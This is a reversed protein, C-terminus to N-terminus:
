SVTDGQSVMCAAMIPGDHCCRQPVLNPDPLRMDRGAIRAWCDFDWVKALSGIRKLTLAESFWGKFLLKVLGSFSDGYKRLISM